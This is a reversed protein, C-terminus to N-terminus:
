SPEKLKVGTALNLGVGVFGVVLVLAAGGKGDIVAFLPSEPIMLGWAAAAISVGLVEAVPRRAGAGAKRSYSAYTLFAALLVLAAFGLWRYLFYQDPDPNEPTPEDILQILGSTLGTYAAVLGIPVQKAVLQLLTPKEDAGATGAPKEAADAKTPARLNRAVGLTTVSGITM